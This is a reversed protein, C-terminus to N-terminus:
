EQSEGGYSTFHFKLIQQPGFMESSGATERVVNGSGTMTQEEREYVDKRPGTRRQSVPGLQKVDLRPERVSTKWDGEGQQPAM